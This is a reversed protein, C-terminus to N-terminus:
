PKGPLVTTLFGCALAPSLPGLRLGPLDWQAMSCNLGHTVVVSGSSQLGHVVVVSDVHWLQQLGHAQLRHEAVPSAVAILLRHVAIFLLGREGCSSFAQSCCSLGLVALYLIFIFYIFYFIGKDFPLNECISLTLTVMM